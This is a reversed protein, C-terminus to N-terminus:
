DSRKGLGARELSLDEVLRDDEESDDSPPVLARDFLLRAAEEDGAARELRALSALVRREVRSSFVTEENALRAEVGVAITRAREVEGLEALVRAFIAEAIARSQPPADMENLLRNAAIASDKATVLEGEQLAIRTRFLELAALQDKDLPALVLADLIARDIARRALDPAGDQEAQKSIGYLLFFRTQTAPGQKASHFSLRLLPIQTDPLGDELAETRRLQAVEFALEALALSGLPREAEAQEFLRDALSLADERRGVADFGLALRARMDAVARRQASHAPRGALQLAAQELREEASDLDGGQQDARALQTLEYWPQGKEEEFEFLPEEATLRPDIELLVPAAPAAPASSTSSTSSTSPAAPASSTSSTQETDGGAPTPYNLASCGAIQTAVALTLLFPVRNM